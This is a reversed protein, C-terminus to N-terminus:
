EINEGELFDKLKRRARTLLQRVTSEKQETIEAIEKTSYGEYYFLHIVIRYKSPLALVTQMINEQEDTRAPYTELLPVTKKWWYSRLHNKCLNVTVRILWASEHGSSEFEPQKEFLKVFVNQVIDEADAKNGVVALATRLMKDGYRKVTEEIWDVPRNSQYRM